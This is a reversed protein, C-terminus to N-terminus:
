RGELVVRDWTALRRFGSKSCNHVLWQGDGVFFTHADEVTLNYMRQPNREVKLADVTGYTGDLKRM